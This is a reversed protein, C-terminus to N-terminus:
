TKRALFGKRRYPHSDEIPKCVPNMKGLEPTALVGEIELYVLIELCVLIM